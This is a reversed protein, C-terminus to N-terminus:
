KKQTSLQRAKRTAEEAQQTMGQARYADALATELTEYDGIKEQERHFAAIAEDYNKLKFQARGIKYDLDEFDPNFKAALNFNELADQYKEEGLDVLGLGYRAEASNADQAMMQAFTTRAQENKNQELYM